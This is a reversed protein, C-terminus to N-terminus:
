GEVQNLGGKLVVTQFGKENLVFSAASSRRGTDCCVVYLTKRNLTNLKHRFLYLPLNVAGDKHSVKFESPLRVDLWQGGNAIVENADDHDIWDLIPEIMLAQFDKQGLRMLIGDTQMTITANCKTKSILAEEGFTDGVHLEALDIGKDRLPSERTVMCSGSRIVYFYDGEQGQKIVIDGAKYDVRELRMFITQINAPPIKQFAGIQLLATMWDGDETEKEAKFDGVEYIGTQDWTLTLDLLDSEISIYGVHDTAVATQQRPLDPAIPNRADATGGTITRVVEDGDKLEITGSLVYFVRNETDGKEFLTAGRNVEQLEIKKLLARLSDRKMGNLPSLVGIQRIDLEKAM